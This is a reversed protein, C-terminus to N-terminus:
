CPLNMKQQIFNVIEQVPTQYDFWHINPNRKFWTNQRKAYRRSNKKIESVAFELSNKGEFYDFLERYGVTQLANLEKHLFLNKAENLLGEEMMKDVRQEIKQYILKRDADLGILIPIFNRSVKPKNKFASYKEGTELCIELARIVRHPNQLEITEYTEKDLEFLMQTLSELGESELKANLQQRIEPSVDPFEDLGYLVANVYLGSGGVMVVKNTIAFLEDLKQLAEKEFQGVSYSEHISKNQIFHHKVAQLEQDNPVATGITMEKFFQRSDCSLIECNLHQALEISLRTKGIGTPGVITILYNM